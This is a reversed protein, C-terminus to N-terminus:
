DCSRNSPIKSTQLAEFDELPPSFAVTERLPIEELWWSLAFAVLMLPVAWFFVAQIALELSAAIGSAVDAPLKWIAAPSNLLDTVDGGISDLVRAPIRAPLESLLYANMIAGFIAVGFAGGLSRFFQASATAVGLDGQEVANQIALLSVQLVMGVGLGLVLMYVSSTLRATEAHMLSLLYMGIVSLGTGAIPFVRYRGTLTTLRGSGVSGAVIGGTLPLVLLGSNTASVGNVVQLFLPLFVAGGFLAFGIIFGLGSSVSFIRNQFLRLPFLPAAVRTEWWLFAYFISLGSVALGLIIPSGWPYLTGGWILGLLLLSVSASLLVAGTIDIRTDRKVVPLKLVISIVVLAAMGIPVNILFVWRWTTTDVILGGVLPGIVSAFAWIGALYGIYRGRQRPSVIDGVVAFTLAMLGGAGLGQVARAFILEAMGPAGGAFLSGVLFVVIAVQFTIRRGYIDSVKGYIPTCITSSLLYATVVWSYYDLGGLEGVITPLATAVITQDLAALFLGAM